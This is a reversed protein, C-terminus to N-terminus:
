GGLKILRKRIDPNDNYKRALVLATEGKKNRAKIDAGLKILRNIVDPNENNLAAYMLATEGKTSKAEIDAGLKVLRDYVDPNLNDAAATMLVTVGDETKANVDAGLKVLREIVDPNSRPASRWLVTMGLNDRANVDAGLKILREIVDPNHNNRAAFMLVNTVLLDETWENVNAGNQVAKNVDEVTASKWFDASLFASEQTQVATKATNEAEFADYIADLNGQAEAYGQEAAKRIDEGEGCSVVAFVILGFSIVVLKKLRGKITLMLVGNQIYSSLKMADYM